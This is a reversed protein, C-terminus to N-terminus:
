NGSKILKICGHQIFTIIIIKFLVVNEFSLIVIYHIYLTIWARMLRRKELYGGWFIINHLLYHLYQLWGQWHLKSHLYM